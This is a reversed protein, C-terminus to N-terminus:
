RPPRGKIPISLGAAAKPAARLSENTLEIRTGAMARAARGPLQCSIGTGIVYQGSLEAPLDVFGTSKGSLFGNRQPTPALALPATPQIPTVHLRGPSDEVGVKAITMGLQPSTCTAPVTYSVSLTVRAAKSLRFVKLSPTESVLTLASADPTSLSAVSTVGGCGNTPNACEINGQAHAVTVTGALLLTVLIGIRPAANGCSITLATLAM